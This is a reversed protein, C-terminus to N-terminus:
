HITLYFWFYLIFSSLYIAQAILFSDYSRIFYGILVVAFEGVIYLYYISNCATLRKSPGCMEVVLVTAIGYRLFM